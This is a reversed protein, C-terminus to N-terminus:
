LIFLNLSCTFIFTTNSSSPDLEYQHASFSPLIQQASSSPPLKLPGQEQIVLNRAKKVKSGLATTCNSKNESPSITTSIPMPLQTQTAVQVQNANLLSSQTCDNGGSQLIEVANMSSTPSPSQATFVLLSYM